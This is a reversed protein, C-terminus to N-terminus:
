QLASSESIVAVAEKSQCNTNSKRGSNGREKEMKLLFAIDGVAKPIGGWGSSIAGACSALRADIIFVNRAIENRKGMGMQGDRRGGDATALLESPTARYKHLPVKKRRGEQEEGGM